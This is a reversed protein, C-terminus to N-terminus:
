CLSGRPPSLTRRVTMNDLRGSAPAVRRSGTSDLQLSAPTAALADVAYGPAADCHQCHPCDGHRFESGRSSKGSEYRGVRDNRRVGPYGCWSDVPRQDKVRRSFAAHGVRLRECYHQALSSDACGFQEHDAPVVTAVLTPTVSVTAGSTGAATQLRLSTLAVTYSLFDGKARM